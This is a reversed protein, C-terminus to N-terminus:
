FEDRGRLSKRNKESRRAKIMSLTEYAEKIEIFKAQAEEKKAADKQKDPHWQKVLKKYQQKIEEQSATDPLGLM